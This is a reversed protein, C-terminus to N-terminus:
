AKWSIRRFLVSYYVCACVTECVCVCLGFLDLRQISCRTTRHSDVRVDGRKLDKIGEILSLPSVLM